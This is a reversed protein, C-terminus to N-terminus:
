SDKKIEKQHGATRKCNCCGNREKYMLRFGAIDPNIGEMKARCDKHNTRTINKHGKRFVQIIGIDRTKKPKCSNIQKQYDLKGKQKPFQIDFVSKM